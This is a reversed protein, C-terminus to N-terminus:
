RRQRDRLSSDTEPPVQARTKPLIVAKKWNKRPAKTLGPPKPKDRQTEAQISMTARGAARGKIMQKIKARTLIM